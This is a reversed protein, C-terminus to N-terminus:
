SVKILYFIYGVFEKFLLETNLLASASPVLLNVPTYDRKDNALFHTAFLDADMHNNLCLKVRPLHWASSYILINGKIGLSDLKSKSFVINEFTNRSQNEIILSSDPIGIDILYSYVADAEKLSNSFVASNGSSIMIRKIKGQKFSKIAQMLRDNADYFVPRKLATDNKSFGGLVIGVEYTSDLHKSGKDEYWLLAENVLFNNSLVYLLIFGIIVRKKRKSDDKTLISGILLFAVWILPKILFLLIKSLYFFM